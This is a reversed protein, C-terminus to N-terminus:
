PDLDNDPVGTNHAAGLLAEGMANGRVSQVRMSDIVRVTEM